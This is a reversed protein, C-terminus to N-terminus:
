PTYTVTWANSFNFGTGCSSGQPDRYWYQFNTPSGLNAVSGFGAGNWDTFTAMGGVSVQVQSRNSAGGACILGDGIPNGNGGSLQNDGRLLLGPKAGNVGSINFLLTDVFLDACGTASLTAGSGTSNACGEGLAGPNSCPCVTGTGDGFCYASGSNSCSTGQDGMLKLYFSTHPNQATYGGFWFCSYFSDSEARDVIGIGSGPGQSALPFTTGAGYAGCPQGSSAFYGNPDGAFLPGIDDGTLSLPASFTWGFGDTSPVGDYTGDCDGGLNFSFSTNSLDMTVIWCGQGGAAVGGPSNLLRFVAIPPALNGAGDCAEYCDSFGIDIRTPGPAVACYGIEFGNIEYLDYLGTLSDVSTPSSTSPVRGSDMITGFLDPLDFYWGVTCTNDYIVEPGALATTSPGRSWVGTSVHYTGGDKVESVVPQPQLSQLQLPSASPAAFLASIALTVLM